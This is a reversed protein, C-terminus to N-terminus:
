PKMAVLGILDARADRLSKAPDSFPEALGHGEGAAANDQEIHLYPRYGSGGKKMAKQFLEEVPMDGTYGHWIGAASGRDVRQQTLM